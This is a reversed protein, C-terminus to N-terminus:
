TRAQGYVRGGSRGICAEMRLDHPPLGGRCQRNTSDADGKGRGDKKEDSAVLRHRSGADVEPADADAGEQRRGRREGEGDDAPPAVVCAGDEHARREGGHGGQEREVAEHRGAHDHAIVSPQAREGATGRQEEAHGDEGQGGERRHGLRLADVPQDHELYDQDDGDREEADDAHDEGADDGVDGLCAARERQREGCHAEEEIGEETQPRDVGVESVRRRESRRTTM